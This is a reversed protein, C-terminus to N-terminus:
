PARIFHCQFFLLRPLFFHLLTSRPNPSSLSLTFLIFLIVLGLPIERPRRFLREHQAFPIEISKRQVNIRVPGPNESRLLALFSARPHDPSKSQSGVVVSNPSIVRAGELLVAQGGRTQTLQHFCTEGEEGLSVIIAANAGLLFVLLLPVGGLILSGSIMGGTAAWVEISGAINGRSGWERGPLEREKKKLFFEVILFGALFSGCVMSSPLLAGRWILVMGLGILVFSSVFSPLMSRVNHRRYIWLNGSGHCFPLAGLLGSSFGALGLWLSLTKGTLRRQADPTLAGSQRREGVTALVGNVLTVPLQPLVLLFVSLLPSPSLSLGSSFFALAGAPLLSPFDRFVIIGLSLIAIARVYLSVSRRVRVLSGELMNKELFSSLGVQGSLFLLLGLIAGSLSAVFPTPHLILFLFAWVKLPQLPIATRFIFASLLWAGGMVLLDAGLNQATGGQESDVMLGVLPLLFWLDFLSGWLEHSRIPERLSVLKRLHRLTSMVSIAGLPPSKAGESM